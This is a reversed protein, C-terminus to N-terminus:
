AVDMRRASEGNSDMGKRPGDRLLVKTYMQDRLFGSVLSLKKPNSTNVAGYRGHTKIANLRTICLVIGLSSIHPTM